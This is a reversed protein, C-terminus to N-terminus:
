QIYKGDSFYQPRWSKTLMITAIRGFKVVAVIVDGNINDNENDELHITRHFNKLEIYYKGTTHNQAFIEARTIEAPTILGALRHNMRHTVHEQTTMTKDKNDNGSLM